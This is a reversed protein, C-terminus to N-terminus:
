RGADRGATPSESPFRQVPGRWREDDLLEETFCGDTHAAIASRWFATASVNANRQRIEWKGPYTAFIWRTAVMAARAAGEFCSSSLWTGFTM